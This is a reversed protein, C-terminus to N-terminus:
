QRSVLVLAGTNRHTHFALIRFPQVLHFHRILASRNGVTSEQRYINRGINKRIIRDNMDTFVTRRLKPHFDAAASRIRRRQFFHHETCGIRQPIFQLIHSIGSLMYQNGIHIFGVVSFIIGPHHLIMASSIRAM